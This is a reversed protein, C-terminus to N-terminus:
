KKGCKNEIFQLVPAPLNNYAEMKMMSSVNDFIQQADSEDVRRKQANSYDAESIYTNARFIRGDWDFLAMGDPIACSLHLIDKKEGKKTNCGIPLTRENRRVYVFVIDDLTKCATFANRVKWDCVKSFRERYRFFFHPQMLAAARWNDYFVIYYDCKRHCVRGVVYVKLYWSAMAAVGAGKEYIFVILYTNGRKTKREKMFSVSKSKRNKMLLKSVYPSTDVSDQYESLEVKDKCHEEYLEQSTMTDIFMPYGEM